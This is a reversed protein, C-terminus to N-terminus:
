EVFTLDDLTVDAMYPTPSDTGAGPPPPFVWSVFTIEAPNVSSEPKGGTLDKWLVTVTTPKDSVTVVKSPSNCTGDYQNTASAPTCRAFTHKDDDGAKKNMNLWASSVDDGATGVTFTVTGNMEVSGSITFSIGKYASADVKTCKNFSVGFGSYDGVEGSIHWNDQTVDSTLPHNM